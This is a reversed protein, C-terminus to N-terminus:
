TQGATFFVGRTQRGVYYKNIFGTEQENGGNESSPSRHPLSRNQRIVIAVVADGGNGANGDVKHSFYNDGGVFYTVRVEKKLVSFSTDIRSAGDPYCYNRCSPVEKPPKNTDHKKSLSDTKGIKKQHV